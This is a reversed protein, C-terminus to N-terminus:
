VATIGASFEKLRGPTRQVDGVDFAPGASEHPAFNSSSASLIHASLM